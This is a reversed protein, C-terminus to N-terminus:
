KEGVLFRADGLASNIGALVLAAAGTAPPTRMMLERGYASPCLLEATCAPDYQRAVKLASPSVSLNESPSMQYGFEDCIRKFGSVVAPNQTRTMIIEEPLNLVRYRNLQHYLGNGQVAPLLFGSGFYNVTRGALILRDNFAYGVVETGDKVLFLAEAESFRQKTEELPVPKAFAQATILNLKQVLDSPQQKPNVLTISIM